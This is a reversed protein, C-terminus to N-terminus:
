LFCILLIHPNFYGLCFIKRGDWGGGFLDERVQPVDEESEWGPLNPGSGILQLETGPVWDRGPHANSTLHISVLHFILECPSQSM